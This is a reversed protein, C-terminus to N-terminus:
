DSVEICIPWGEGDTMLGIVIQQKGKKEDRNYGFEGLENQLGELYSSTVDYLYFVPVARKYKKQFLKNEIPAQEKEVWDLADYLHDENFSDLNLIDCGAHQNMLRTASLRSGRGLLRAYIMWLVLKANKSDGIAEVLGIDKAIQHFTWVAGISPGQKLEFPATEQNLTHQKALKLSKKLYAVDEASCNSLNAITDHKVVGNVRYSNRLLVRRYSKGKSSYTLDDIFMPREILYTVVMM